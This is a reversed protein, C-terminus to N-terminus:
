ACAEEFRVRSFGGDNDLLVPHEDHRTLVPVVTADQDETLVWGMRKVLILVAGYASTVRRHHTRCAALLWAAGNIREAAEGHRGGAKRNLRHHNDTALQNCTPWECWGDSRAALLAVTPRKPGTDKRSRRMPTRKLPSNRLIM